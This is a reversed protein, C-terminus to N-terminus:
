TLVKKFTKKIINKNIKSSMENEFDVPEINGFQIQKTLLM